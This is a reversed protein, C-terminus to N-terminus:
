PSQPHGRRSNQTSGDCFLAVALTSIDRRLRNFRRVDRYNLRTTLLIVFLDRQPDIWLSSGSYGTHGFSMDSFSRGRPASFPSSIDWGLGRVVRGGSYFYPATMQTIIQESFVRRGDLLGGNLIMRAFRAIDSASSFLGAHGAVGGLKRSNADQVVGAVLENDITLTPAANAAIPFPPLFMTEGAGLPIFVHERCFADLRFGSVRHVLEGLLIFNIDAYHFRNGPQHWSRQFAARRVAVSLSEDGNIRIDALGSTHTLLNLITVDERGSGSFEPFWRTLPDTLSIQGQELLKLVAPATALVKTLSAVDFLTRDDLLPSEKAGSLRGRAVSYLVGEHNGILVVGGAILGRSLARELVFDITAGGGAELAGDCAFSPSLSSFFLCAMTLFLVPRVAAGRRCCNFFVNFFGGQFPAKSQSRTKREM